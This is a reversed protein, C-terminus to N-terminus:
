RPPLPVAFPRYVTCRVRVSFWRMCRVKPYMGALLDAMHGMRHRWTPDKPDMTPLLGVLSTSVEYPHQDCFSNLVGLAAVELTELLQVTVVDTSLDAWELHDAHLPVSVQVRCRPVGLLTTEV